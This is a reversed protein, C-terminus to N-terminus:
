PCTCCGGYFNYVNPFPNLANALCYNCTGTCTLYTPTNLYVGTLSGSASLDGILSYLMSMQYLAKYGEMEFILAFEGPEFVKYVVELESIKARVIIQEDETRPLQIWRAATFWGVAEALQARDALSLDALDSGAELKIQPFQNFVSLLPTTVFPSITGNPLNSLTAKLARRAWDYILSLLTVEEEEDVPDSLFPFTDLLDDFPIMEVAM